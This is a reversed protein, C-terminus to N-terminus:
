RCDWLDQHSLARDLESHRKKTQLVGTLRERRRRSAVCANLTEAEGPEATMAGDHRAITAPV